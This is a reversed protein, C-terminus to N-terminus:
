TQNSSKDAYNIKKKHTAQSSNPQLLYADLVKRAVKPAFPAHEVIVAIAIKPHNVPAFAIFWSDDLLTTNNLNKNHMLLGKKQRRISHLQATGTKGAVTYPPNRGFRFGTGHKNHIVGQMASIIENWADAHTLIVPTKKTVSTYVFTRDPRKQKLLLKPQVRIGRNALTATASALQLPTTLMAGQGIGSIVTDGTFWPKGKHQLKWEPSPVLGSLEEKLDIGTLQGFGFRKLINDINKIGMNVALRYFYTDCSTIIAKKLNVWHHIGLDHYRHKTNPLRFWGPDYITTEPTIIGTDLAHLALFPKITSALPFQGRIARNFLPKDKSDELQQYSQKTLGTVLLNTNFSPNSVMALIEGTKPDIAVVAGQKNGLAKQAINQLRIDITLYLDNGPIPPTRELTRIVHNSANIEVQQFGIKGHLISEYYKEIGIKGVYNTAAYNERPLKQLDHADIRGVYGISFATSKGFLYHRILRATVHAEPFRYQNIAFKAIESEELKLKLPISDFPRRTHCQRLFNEKDIKSTNIIASLSKITEKLHTSKEPVIDLSFVPINEALLKGNRDYILGRKPAIPLLTLRNQQSLTIYAKHQVIQLYFLRSIIIIIFLALLAVVCIIRNKFQQKERVHNKIVLASSYSDFHQRTHTQRSRKKFLWSHLMTTLTQM